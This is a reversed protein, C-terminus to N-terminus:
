VQAKCIKILFGKGLISSFNHIHMKLSISIKILYKFKKM